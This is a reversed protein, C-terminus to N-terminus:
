DGEGRSRRALSDLIWFSGRTKVLSWLHVASYPLCSVNPMKKVPMRYRADPMLYIEEGPRQMAFRAAREKRDRPM